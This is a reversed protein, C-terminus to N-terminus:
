SSNMKPKINLMKEVEIRQFCMAASETLAWEQVSEEM